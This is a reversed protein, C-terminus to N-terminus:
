FDFTLDYPSCLHAYTFVIHADCQATTYACTACYAIIDMRISNMMYNSICVCIYTYVIIYRILNGYAYAFVICHISLVYTCM